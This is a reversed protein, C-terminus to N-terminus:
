GRVAREYLGIGRTTERRGEGTPRVAASGKERRYRGPAPVGGGLPM